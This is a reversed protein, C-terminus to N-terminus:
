RRLIFEKANMLGWLLDELAARRDSAKELHRNAAALEAASPGRTLAVWYLEEVIQANTKGANLLANLQNDSRSILDHIAPGSIMQFAQGMSTEASRECECVLQRQPKGFLSLFLDSRFLM